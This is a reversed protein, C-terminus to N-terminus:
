DGGEAKLVDEQSFIPLYIAHMLNAPYRDGNEELAVVLRRFPEEDSDLLGAKRLLRCLAGDTAGSSYVDDMIVIVGNTERIFAAQEESLVLVKETGTIPVYKEAWCHEEVHFEGARGGRIVHLSVNDDELMDVAAQIMPVSKSSDPAIVCLPGEVERVTEELMKALAGSGHRCVDVELPNYYAIYVDDGVNKLPLRLGDVCYVVGDSSKELLEDRECGM